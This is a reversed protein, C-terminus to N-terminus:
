PDEVVAVRLRRELEQRLALAEELQDAQREVIVLVQLEQRVQVM